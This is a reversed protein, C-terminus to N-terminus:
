YSFGTQRVHIHPKAGARAAGGIVEAVFLNHDGAEYKATVTCELHAICDTLIPGASCQTVNLGEFAKESPAFGKSFRKFIGAGGEGVVNVVFKKTADLLPEIPRGKKVAMCIMPPEFSVQQIWSALLATSKGEKTATAISVGSPIKALATSVSEDSM